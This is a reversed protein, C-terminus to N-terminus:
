NGVETGSSMTRDSGGVASVGIESGRPVRTAMKRAIFLLLHQDEEGMRSLLGRLESFLRVQNKRSGRKSENTVTRASVTVSEDRDYLLRYVPIELADSIKELTEITPIARGNELWSIRCRPFGTRREIDAQSLNRAKREARLRAGVNIRV